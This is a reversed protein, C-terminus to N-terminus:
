DGDLDPDLAELSDADLEPLADSCTEEADLLTQLRATVLRGILRQVLELDPLQEGPRLRPSLHSTLKAVAPETLQDIIATLSQAVKIRDTIDKSPM